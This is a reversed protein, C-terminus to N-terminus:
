VECPWLRRLPHLRTWFLPLAKPWRLSASSQKELCPSAQLAYTAEHLYHEVTRESQSRARRRLLGVNKFLFHHTGGARLGAPVLNFSAVQLMRSASKWYPLFGSAGTPWINSDLEADTLSLALWDFDNAVGFDEILSFQHNNRRKCLHLKPRRIRVVGCVHPYTLRFYLSASTLGRWTVFMVEEVRCLCHFELDRCTGLERLFGNHHSICHTAPSTYPM